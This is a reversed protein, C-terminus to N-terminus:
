EEGVTLAYIKDWASDWAIREQELRVNQGWEHNKLGRYLSQEPLTLCSIEPAAHPREEKVWLDRNRLLTQRDMLLSQLQPLYRRARGLIALGHTDIDGWYFCAAGELWPLGGLDDVGYGLGMIVVAGPLDSFALGTQLNEVIFVTQPAFNLQALQKAPASIDELGGVRRRLEPDLLRLRLLRPPRRLGTLTFFDSEESAQQRVVALLNGLLSGRAELWKSDIGALPIQRPYLQTEPHDILWALMSLLRRFDGEAYDALVSFYRPLVSGLQPWRETMVVHRCRARQWRESEDVWTAVEQPNDLVLREPLRQNGLVRWRREIWLLQGVGRWDQWARIWGRVREPNELGEKETPRGLAISMPWVSGADAPEEALWNKQQAKFRRQLLARVDEPFKM